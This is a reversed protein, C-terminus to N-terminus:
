GKKSSKLLAAAPRMTASYGGSRHATGEDDRKALAEFGSEDETDDVRIELLDAGLPLVAVRGAAPEEAHEGADREAHDDGRQGAREQIQTGVHDPEAHDEDRHDDERPVPVPHPLVGARHAAVDLPLDVRRLGGM